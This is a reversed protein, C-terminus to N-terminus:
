DSVLGTEQVTITRSLHAASNTLTLTGYGDTEGTGRDFVVDDDQTNLSVFSLSVSPDFSISSVTNSSGGYTNGSFLTAGAASLHVGFQSQSDGAVTRSRAEQLLAVLETDANDTAQRQRYGSFNYLAIGAIVVVIAACVVVEILTM